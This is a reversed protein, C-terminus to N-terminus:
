GTGEEEIDDMDTLAECWDELRYGAIADVEALAIRWELQPAHELRHRITQEIEEPTKGRVALIFPYGFQAKYEANLDALRGLEEEALVGLGAGSQEEASFASMPGREGLAPHARLLALQRECGADKVIRAMTQGLQAVDAYPRERWAQEAVWPSSEYLGGFAAIFQQEGMRQIRDIPQRQDM